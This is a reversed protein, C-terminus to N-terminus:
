VTCNKRACVIYNNCQVRRFSDAHLLGRHFFSKKRDQSVSVVTLNFLKSQDLSSFIGLHVTLHYLKLFFREHLMFIHQLVRCCFLILDIKNCLTKGSKQQMANFSNMAVRHLETLQLMNCQM